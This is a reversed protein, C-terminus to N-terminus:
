VGTRKVRALEWGLIADFLVAPDAGKGVRRAFATVYAHIHDGVFIRVLDTLSGEDLNSFQVGLGTTPGDRVVRAIFGEATASEGWPADLEIRVKTKEPLFFTSRLFMGSLSMDESRLTAELYGRGDQTTLRIKLDKKVRRFRRKEDHGGEVLMWEPSPLGIATTPAASSARDLYAPRSGTTRAPAVPVRTDPAKTSPPARDATSRAIVVPKKKTAM